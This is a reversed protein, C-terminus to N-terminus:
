PNAPLDAQVLTQRDPTELMRTPYMKLRLHTSDRLRGTDLHFAWHHWRCVICDNEIYGGALSGGAHPCHNDMTYVQGQHLYVALQLSGIRM